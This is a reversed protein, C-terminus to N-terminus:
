DFDFLTVCFFCSGSQVGQNENQLAITHDGAALQLPFFSPVLAAHTRRDPKGLRVFGVETGGTLKGADRVPDIVVRVGVHEPDNKAPGKGPQVVDWYASGAVFLAQKAHAVRFSAPLPVTNLSLVENIPVQVDM